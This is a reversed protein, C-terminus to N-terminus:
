EKFVSKYRKYEEEKIKTKHEEEKIKKEVMEKLAKSIKNMLSSSNSM